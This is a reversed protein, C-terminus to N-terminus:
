IKSMAFKRGQKQNKLHRMLMNPVKMESVKPEVRSNQLGPCDPYVRGLGWGGARGWVRSSDLSPAQELCPHLATGPQVGIEEKSFLPRGCLSTQSLHCYYLVPTSCTLSVLSPQHESHSGWLWRGAPKPEFGVGVAEEVHLVPYIVERGLERQLVPNRGLWFPLSFQGYKLPDSHANFSSM